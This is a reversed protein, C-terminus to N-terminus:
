FSPYLFTLTLRLSLVFLLFYINIIQLATQFYCDSTRFSRYKQGLLEIPLINKQSFLKFCVCLDPLLSLELM